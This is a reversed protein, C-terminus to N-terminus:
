GPDATNSNLFQAKRHRIDIGEILYVVSRAISKAHDAVRELAKSMTALHVLSRAQNPHQRCLEIAANIVERHERDVQRDHALV